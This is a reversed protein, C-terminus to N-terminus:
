PLHESEEPRQQAEESQPEIEVYYIAGAGPAHLRHTAHRIPRYDHGFPDRVAIRELHDMRALLGDVERLTACHTEEGAVDLVWPSGTAGSALELSLTEFIGALLADLTTPYLRLLRHAQPERRRDSIWTQRLWTFEVRGFSSGLTLKRGEELTLHFNNGARDLISAAEEVYELDELMATKSPYYTFDGLEDVVVYDEPAAGALASAHAAGQNLPSRKM